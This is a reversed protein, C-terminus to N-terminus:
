KMSCVRLCIINQLSFPSIFLYSFKHPSTFLLPSHHPSDSAFFQTSTHRLPAPSTPPLPTPSWSAFVKSEMERDVFYKLKEGGESERKIRKRESKLGERWKRGTKTRWLFHLFNTVLYGSFCSFNKLALSKWIKSTDRRM